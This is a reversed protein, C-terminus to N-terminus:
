PQRRYFDRVRDTMLSQTDGAEPLSVSPARSGDMLDATFESLDLREFDISEVEAVTFGRCDSWGIGLQARGQQQLIRGLKSGFVCWRRERRVCVGFFTRRACFRGLYHTNGANREEALEVEEASCNALGVLAGSNECCNALGFLRITCARRRGAFFRLAQRDFEDGGLETVMNLRATADVFGTNAPASASECDAGVCWAVQGCSGGAQADAVEADCDTVRGSALGQAGHAPSQPAAEIGASRVVEGDTVAVSAAPRGAAGAIVSRGAAGGPDDPVALRANAADELAAAGIAREPLDTGAYGPVANASAADRAIDRAAATGAQGIARAAAKPDEAHAATAILAWLMAGSLAAMSVGPPPRVFCAGGRRPEIRRSM